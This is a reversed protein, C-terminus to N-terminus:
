IESETEVTEESASIAETAEPIEYYTAESDSGGSLYKGVLEGAIFLGACCAIKGVKPAYKKAGNKLKTFFKETKQEECVEVEEVEEADVVVNKNEEM